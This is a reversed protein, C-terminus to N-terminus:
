KEETNLTENYYIDGWKKAFENDTKIKNIFEEETFFKYTNNETKLMEDDALVTYSSTFIVVKEKKLTSISRHRVVGASDTM